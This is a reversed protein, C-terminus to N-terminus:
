SGDGQVLALARGPVPRRAGEAQGDRLLMMLFAAADGGRETKLALDLYEAQQRVQALRTLSDLAGRAETLRWRELNHTLSLRYLQRGAEELGDLTTLEPLPFDEALAHRMKSAIGGKIQFPRAGPPDGNHHPCGKRAKDAIRYGCPEGHQNKFGLEGCLKM